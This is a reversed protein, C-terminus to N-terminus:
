RNDINIEKNVLHMDSCTKYISITKNSNLIARRFGFRSTASCLNGQHIGDEILVRRALDRVIEDFFCDSFSPGGELYFDEEEEETTVLKWSHLLLLCAHASDQWRILNEKKEFHSVPKEEGWSGKASEVARGERERNVHFMSDEREQTQPGGAYCLSHELASAKLHFVCM